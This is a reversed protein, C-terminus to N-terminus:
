DNSATAAQQKRQAYLMEFNIPTINLAPFGGRNIMSSINERAYPFLINACFVNLGEEIQEPSFDKFAFIGAQQLEVIYLVKDEAQLTVNIKMVLEHVEADKEIKQYDLNINFKLEPKVNERFIAPTNPSEFSSDKVYIKDLGFQPQDNNQEAM